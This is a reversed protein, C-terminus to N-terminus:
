FLWDEDEEKGKELDFRDIQQIVEELKDRRVKLSTSIKQFRKEFGEAMEGEAPKLDLGGLEAQLRNKEEEALRRGERKIRQFHLPLFGNLSPNKEIFKEQCLRFEEMLVQVHSALERTKVKKVALQVRELFCEEVPSCCVNLNSLCIGHGSLCDAARKALKLMTEEKEQSERKPSAQVGDNIKFPPRKHVPRFGVAAM